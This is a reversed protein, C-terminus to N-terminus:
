RGNYPIDHICTVSKLINIIMYCSIRYKIVYFNFSLHIPTAAALYLSNPFDFVCAHWYIDPKRELNKSVVFSQSDYVM